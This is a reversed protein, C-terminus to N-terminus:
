VILEVDAAHQDGLDAWDEVRRYGISDLMADLVDEDVWSNIEPDNFAADGEVEAAAIGSEHRFVLRGAEDTEREQPMVVICPTDWSGNTSTTAWAVLHTTITAEM